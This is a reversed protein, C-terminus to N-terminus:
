RYQWLVIGGGELTLDGGESEVQYCGYISQRAHPAADRVAAELHIRIPKLGITLKYDIVLREKKADYRGTVPGSHVLQRDVQCCSADSQSVFYVGFDGEVKGGNEKIAAQILASVTTVDILKGEWNGSISM